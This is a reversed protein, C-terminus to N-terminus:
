RVEFCWLREQDRVYLKGGAVVPHTCVKIYSSAKRIRSAEPLAFEGRVGWGGEGPEVLLLKGETGVIVFREGVRALSGGPTRRDQWATEGGPLQQCVWGSSDSYGYAKGGHAIAGGHYVAMARRADGKATDAVKWGGGPKEISLLSCGAGYGCTTHVLDGVVVPTNIVGATAYRIPHRWLVAGTAPDLGLAQPPSSMLAGVRYEVGGTLQVVQRVGAIEAVVASSYSAADTVSTTRWVLKGTPLDFAAVTGKPGGPSVVVRGAEVLPSESYGWDTDLINGRMLQGAHDTRLDTRWLERGTAADACLLVGQGGLAVVRSGAVTPTGRPGDGWRNKTLPGLKARWVERGTGAERATLYEFEADSAMVFLRDGVVAPGSYGAGLTDISWLLKPGAPLWDALPGAESSAGDRNPGRWQPWDGGAAFLAALLAFAPARATM